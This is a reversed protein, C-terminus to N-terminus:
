SALRHPCSRSFSWSCSLTLLSTLFGFIHPHFQKLSRIQSTSSNKLSLFYSLLLHLFFDLYVPPPRVWLRKLWSTHATSFLQTGFAAQSEQLVNQSKFGYWCRLGCCSIDINIQRNLKKEQSVASLSQFPQPLYRVYKERAKSFLLRSFIQLCFIWM